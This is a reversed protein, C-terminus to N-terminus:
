LFNLINYVTNFNDKTVLFAIERVGIKYLVQIKYLMHYATEMWVMHQEKSCLYCFYASQSIEDLYIKANKFIALRTAEYENLIKGSIVGHDDITYNVSFIDLLPIKKISTCIDTLRNVPLVPIIDKTQLERNPLTVVTNKPLDAIDRVTAISYWKHPIDTKDVYLSLHLTKEM